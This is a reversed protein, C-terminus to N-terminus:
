LWWGPRRSAAAPLRWDAAARRRGGATMAAPRGHKRESRGGRGAPAGRPAPELPRGDPEWPVRGQLRELVDMLEAALRPAAQAAGASDSAACGDLKSALTRAIAVLPADAASLDTDVLLEDVAAAVGSRVANMDLGAIVPRQEERVLRRVHQPTVGFEESLEGASWGEDWFLHRLRALEADSIKREGAMQVLALRAPLFVAVARPTSM